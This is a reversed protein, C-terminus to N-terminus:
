QECFVWYGSHLFICLRCEDPRIPRDAEYVNSSLCLMYTCLRVVFRILAIRVNSARLILCYLFYFFFCPTVKTPHWVCGFLPRLFRSRSWEGGRNTAASTATSLNGDGIFCTWTMSGALTGPWERLRMMWGDAVAQLVKWVELLLPCFTVSCDM